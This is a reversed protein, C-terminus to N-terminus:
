IEDNILSFTQDEYQMQIVGYEYSFVISQIPSWEYGPIRIANKYTHGLVEISIKKSQDYNAVFSSQSRESNEPHAIIAHIDNQVSYRVFVTIRNTSGCSDLYLFYQKEYFYDTYDCLGYYQEVNVTTDIACVLYFEYEDTEPCYFTITDHIDYYRIAGEPFWYEHNRCCSCTILLSIIGTLFVKNLREM